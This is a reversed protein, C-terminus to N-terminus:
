KSTLENSLWELGEYIGSGNLACTQQVIWKRNIRKLELNECIQGVTLSGNIDTKNAYILLIAESLEPEYLLKHLENKVEFIREIDSSDIVFILADTNQYYHKWLNRIRDQGGIDWITFNINRYKVSEVNFGITPITTINEGLKLKYVITTKGANDLGLMLIRIEKKKFLAFFKSISLGM